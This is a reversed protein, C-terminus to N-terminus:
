DHRIAGANSPPRAPSASGTASRPGPAALGRRGTAAQRAADEIDAAIITMDTLADIDGASIRRAYARLIRRIFAAYRSNEALPTATSM